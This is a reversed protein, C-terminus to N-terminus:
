PGFDLTGSITGKRSDIDWFPSSGCPVPAACSGNMALTGAGCGPGVNRQNCECQLPFASAKRHPDINDVPCTATTAQFPSWCRIQCSAGPLVGQACDSIDICPSEPM